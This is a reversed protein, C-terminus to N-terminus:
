QIRATATENPAVTVFQAPPNNGSACVIDVRYQGAVIPMRTIPPFGLARDGIKVNCTEFKTLVTLKGLAPATYPVTKGSAVVPVDLLHERAVVRLRTGPPVTLTTRRAPM